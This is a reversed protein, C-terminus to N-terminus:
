TLHGYSWRLEVELTDDSVMFSIALFLKVLTFITYEAKQETLHM